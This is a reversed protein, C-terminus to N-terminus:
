LALTSLVFKDFVIYGALCLRSSVRYCPAVSGYLVFLSKKLIISLSIETDCRNNPQCGNGSGSHYSRSLCQEM